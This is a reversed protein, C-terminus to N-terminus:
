PRNLEEYLARYYNLFRVPDPNGEVEALAYRDYNAKRLLTFLERYPYRKGAYEDSLEKLHVNRLFPKLLEFGEKVSGNAVDEPNCNWCVGVNRHGCRDMIARMRSPIQTEAGHVELWIEVGYREGYQGCERLSDGIRQLTVAEAVGQPLGNPRVKVGWCGLDHALEVFRGTEEINRARVSPDPSQFECVTGLSLLRVRSRSFKAAVALRDDKSLSPEVGHKHTTRLEVAEYHTLELNHIITDLDWDKAVNYTVLGLKM